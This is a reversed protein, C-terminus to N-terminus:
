FHNEWIVNTLLLAGNRAFDMLDLVFLVASSPSSLAQSIKVTCGAASDLAPSYWRQLFTTQYQICLLLQLM